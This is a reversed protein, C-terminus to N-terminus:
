LWIPQCFRHYIAWDSRIPRAYFSSSSSPSSVSSSSPSLSSSSSRWLFRSLTNHGYDDNDDDDDGDEDSDDDDDDDSDDNEDVNKGTKWVVLAGSPM